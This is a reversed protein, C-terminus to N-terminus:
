ERRPKMGGRPPRRGRQERHRGMLVFYVLFAAGGASFWSGNYLIGLGPVLKGLTGGVRRRRHRRHRPRQHRRRVCVSRGARISTGRTSAGRAAGASLDRVIVGGAAGLLGSYSILWTQYRDLLLWPFLLVGIAAAAPRRGAGGQDPAARPELPQQGDVGRQGRHQHHLKAVVLVVLALM